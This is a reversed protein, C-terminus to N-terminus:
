KRALEAEIQSIVVSDDPKTDSRYRKLLKGDKSILFKEFNWEVAGSVKNSNDVPDQSVLWKFVPQSQEGTVPAKTFLPFDVKYKLECFKKIEQNSGPEQGGFDNSPFGLVVLGRQSYKRYLSELNQYQPTYGCGSATNVALIVKGRYESLKVRHGDITTAELGFFDQSAAFSLQAASCLTTLALLLIKGNKLKM